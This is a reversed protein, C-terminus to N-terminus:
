LSVPSSTPLVTLSLTVAVLGSPDAVAADAAVASSATPTAPLGELVATLERRLWPHLVANTCSTVGELRVQGDRPHFLTLVKATGDRLYEHPQRAPEGEPRWAPGPNPVTQSPGAQDACWVSLGM